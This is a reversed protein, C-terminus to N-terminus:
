LYLDHEELHQLVEYVIKWHEELTSSWILIDNLYVAVKGEAILDAFIANMLAQFTAPSNTLRFFIVRPEFLGQNTIFAAKWDNGEKIRINYYGWCVNFKTFIKADRLKNIKDLLLPLPYRNKVTISNLKRYDQILRLDGTKKKVFFVPLAMPSKSPVIYGKELNEKIFQDLTKQENIPMPYVKTKLTEPADPKLDITHDWPQHKSLRHSETESFVKAYRQYKKLVLEEFTKKAKGEGAKMALETSLTYSACIWIEDSADTIIGAKIWARRELRNAELIHLPSLTFQEPSNPIEMEGSDWDITSNVKKLWPLGLIIDEPGLDTVLFDTPEKWSGITLTLCAFHTLSGAKNKSSDINHLTITNPLPSYIIHHCQVFCKSVFLATAGSDIM